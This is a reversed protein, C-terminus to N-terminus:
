LIDMWGWAMTVVGCCGTVIYGDLGLGHDGSCLLERHLELKCYLTASAISSPASGCNLYQRANLILILHSALRFAM